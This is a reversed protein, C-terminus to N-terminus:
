RTASSWATTNGSEFGDAFIVSSEDAGIDVVPIHDGDGDMVRPDGEFDEAPLAGPGPAADSGADICPSGTGLHYDGAIWTDDPVDVAAGGVQWSGRAIFDPDVNQNGGAVNWSGNMEGYVNNFGTGTTSAGYYSVDLDAAGTASLNGWFINNFAYLGTGVGVVVGGSVAPSTSLTENDVVTNNTLYIDGTDYNSITIGGPTLTSVNGTILNNRLLVYGGPLSWDAMITLGSREVLNGTIVSDTVLISGPFSTDGPESMMYVGSKTRGNRVVTNILHIEDISSDGFDNMLRVWLGHYGANQITLGEVHVGGGAHQYLSLATGSGLADLVTSAPDDVRSTCTPDYGGRITLQWHEYSGFSFNDTYTGQQVLVTDNSANAAANDLATQLEGATGVCFTEAEARPTAIVASFVAVVMTAVAALVVHGGNPVRSRM